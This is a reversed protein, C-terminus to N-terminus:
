LFLPPLADRRSLAIQVPRSLATGCRLPLSAAPSPISNENLMVFIKGVRNRLPCIFDFRLELNKAIEAPSMGAERAKEM